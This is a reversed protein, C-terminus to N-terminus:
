NTYIENFLEICLGEVFPWALTVLVIAVLVILIQLLIKYWSNTSKKEHFFYEYENESLEFPIPNYKDEWGIISATIKKDTSFTDKSLYVEGKEDLVVHTDEHGEQHFKIGNCTIPKDDKNHFIFKLKKEQFVDKDPIIFIYEEQEETINYKAVNSSDSGDIVTISEGDRVKPLDIEGNLDTFYSNSQNSNEVTIPYNPVVDGNERKVILKPTLYNPVPPIAPPTTKEFRFENIASDTLKKNQSTYGDVSVECNEDARVQVHQTFQGRENTTGSYEHGDYNIRVSKNPYVVSDLLTTILIDTEATPSSPPTSEFIFDIHNNNAHITIEKTQERLNAHLKEDEYLPIEIESKGSSDTVSNYLTGHYHLSVQENKIPNGDSVASINVKTYETIDIDYHYQGPNIELYYEKNDHLIDYITYREGDCLNGMHCLGASDTHLKRAKNSLKLGFQYNPLRKGEYIFALTVPNKNIIEEIIPKGVVRVPKKFGWGTILIKIDDEDDNFYIYGDDPVSLLLETQKEGFQLILKAKVALLAEKVIEQKLPSFAIMQHWNYRNDSWIYNGAGISFKAFPNEDGLISRLKKYLEPYDQQVLKHVEKISSKKEM